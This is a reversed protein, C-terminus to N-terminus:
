RQWTGTTITDLITNLKSKVYGNSTETSPAPDEQGAEDAVDDKKSKEENEQGQGGTNGNVPASDSESKGKDKGLAIEASNEKKTNTLISAGEKGQNLKELTKSTPQAKAKTTAPEQPAPPKSKVIKNVPKSDSQKKKLQGKNLIKAVSKNPRPININKIQKRLTQIKPKIETTSSM